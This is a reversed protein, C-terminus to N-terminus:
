RNHNHVENETAKGNTTSLKNNKGHKFEGEKGKAAKSAAAEMFCHLLATKLLDKKGTAALDVLRSFSQESINSLVWELFQDKAAELSAKQEKEELRAKLAKLELVDAM